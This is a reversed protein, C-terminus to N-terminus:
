LILCFPSLSSFFSVSPSAGHWEGGHGAGAQPASPGSLGGDSCLAQNRGEGCETGKLLFSFHLVVEVFHM